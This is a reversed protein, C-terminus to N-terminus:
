HGPHAEIEPMKIPQAPVGRFMGFASLLFNLFLWLVVVNRYNKASARDEGQASIIGDLKKDMGTMRQDGSELRALISPKGNGFFVAECLQRILDDSGSVGTQTKLNREISGLIEDHFSRPTNLAGKNIFAIAGADRSQNASKWDESGSVVIVRSKASMMRIARFVEDHSRGPFGLDILVVQPHEEDWAALGETISSAGRYTWHKTRRVLAEVLNQDTKCDDIHLFNM